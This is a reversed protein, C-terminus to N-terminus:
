IVAKYKNIKKKIGPVSFNFEEALEELTLGDIFRRQLIARDKENLVNNHISKEIAERCKIKPKRNQMLIKITLLIIVARNFDDM